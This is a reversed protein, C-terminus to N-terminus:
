GRQSSREAHGALGRSWAREKDSNRAERLRFAHFEHRQSRQDGVESAVQGRSQGRHDGSWHYDSNQPEPIRSKQHMLECGKDFASGWFAIGGIV